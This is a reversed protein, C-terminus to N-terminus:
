SMSSEPNRSFTFLSNDPGDKKHLTTKKRTSYPIADKTKVNKAGELNYVISFFSAHFLSELHLTFNINVTNEQHM